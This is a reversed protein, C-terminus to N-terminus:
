FRKQLIPSGNHLEVTGLSGEKLIVHSLAPVFTASDCPAPGWSLVWCDGEETERPPFM